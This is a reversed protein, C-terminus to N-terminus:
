WEPDRKIVHRPPTIYFGGPMEWLLQSVNGFGKPEPVQLANGRRNKRIIRETTIRKHIQTQVWVENKKGKKMESIDRDISDLWQQKPSPPTNQLATQPSDGRPTLPSDQKATQLPPTQPSKKQPSRPLIQQPTPLRDDPAHVVGEEPTILLEEKTVKPLKEGQARGKEEELICRM